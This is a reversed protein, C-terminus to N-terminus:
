YKSFVLLFFNKDREDIIMYRIVACIFIGLLFQSEMRM